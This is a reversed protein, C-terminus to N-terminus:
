IGIGLIWTSVKFVDKCVTNWFFSSFSTCYTIRTKFILDILFDTVHDICKITNFGCQSTHDNDLHCTAILRNRCPSRHQMAMLSYCHSIELLGLGLLSHLFFSDLFSALATTHSIQNVERHHFFLHWQAHGHDTIQTGDEKGRKSKQKISHSLSDAAVM